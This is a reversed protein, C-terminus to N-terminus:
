NVIVSYVTTGTHPTMTILVPRGTAVCEPALIVTENIGEQAIVQVSDKDWGAIFENSANMSVSYTGTNYYTHYVLVKAERSAIGRILHRNGDDAPGSLVTGASATTVGSDYVDDVEGADTLRTGIRAGATETAYGVVDGPELRVEATTDNLELVQYGTQSVIHPLVAKVRYNIPATYRSGPATCNQDLTSATCQHRFHCFVESASCTVM